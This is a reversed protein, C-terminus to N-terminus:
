RAAHLERLTQVVDTLYTLAQETHQIKERLSESEQAWLLLIRVDEINKNM